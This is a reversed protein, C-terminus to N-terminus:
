AEERTLPLIEKKVLAEVTAADIGRHKVGNIRVCPGRSCEGMCCSRTVEVKEAIGLRNLEKQFVDPTDEAGFMRCGMGSCISLKIM